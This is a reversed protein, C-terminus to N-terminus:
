PQKVWRRHWPERKWSAIAGKCGSLGSYPGGIVQAHRGGVGEALLHICDAKGSCKLDRRGALLRDALRAALGVRRAAALVIVDEQGDPGWSSIHYISLM